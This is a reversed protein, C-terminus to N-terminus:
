IKGGAMGFLELIIGVGVAMSGSIILAEFARVLGSLLDGSLSDRIANTIAIGPLLIYIAGILVYDINSCLGFVSCIVTLIAGVSSAMLTKIFSNKEIRGHLDIFLIMIMGIFISCIIDNLAGGGAATFGGMSIGSFLIKVWLSYTKKNEISELFAYADDLSMEDPNYNRSFTNIESVKDLNIDRYLISKQFTYTIGYENGDDISLSMGTPTIFSEVHTIGCNTCIRNMVETARYTEGGNKLMIEGAFLALKLIKKKNNM